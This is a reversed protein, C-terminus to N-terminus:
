RAPSRCTAARRPATGLADVLEIRDPHRVALYRGSRSLAIKRPMVGM